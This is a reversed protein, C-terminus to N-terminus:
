LATVEMEELALSECTLNILTFTISLLSSM